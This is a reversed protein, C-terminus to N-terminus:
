FWSNPICIHEGNRNVNWWTDILVTLGLSVTALPKVNVNWWTDILVMQETASRTNTITNVNWWTDILVELSSMSGSSCIYECEVMYRNFCTYLRRSIHIYIM